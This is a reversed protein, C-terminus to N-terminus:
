FDCFFGLSNRHANDWIIVGPKLSQFPKRDGWGDKVEGIAQGAPSASLNERM